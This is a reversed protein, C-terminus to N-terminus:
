RTVEAEALSNTALETPLTPGGSMLPPNYTKSILYAVIRTAEQDAGGTTIDCIWTMDSDIPTQPSDWYPKTWWGGRVFIYVAVAHDYPNVGSVSGWVWGDLTGYASVGDIKIGPEEQWNPVGPQWVFDSIVLEVEQGDTPPQGGVLWLNMRINENGPTPIDPGRYIWQHVLASPPPLTQSYRGYYSRFEVFEPQWVLYNTLYGDTNELDVTFRSCNTCGPCASCPQVVFQANTPEEPNGWRSFEIDLERHHEQHAATEWTFLGLTVNPDILDPRSRTVFIYTGYGFSNTSIAETCYWINDQKSATLHLHGDIDVWIDGEKDSFYNSGPGAPFDRRKVQWNYGAFSLTRLPPSRDIVVWVIAEPISPIEFCPSCIPPVSSAPVLFVIIKTAFQDYGGTTIDCTWTGDPQIPTLPSDYYPKTWWVEEVEIYVVIRWEAPNVGTVKGQLLDFSKYAPVHTLVISPEEKKKIVITIHQSSELGRSDTVTLTIIHDGVSLDNRTFSTGTGIIGNLSSNWVLSSGPLQNGLYDTGSGEFFVADGQSFNSGDAPKSILATPPSVSKIQISISKNATQGKADKVTLTITHDGSSLNRKSFSVGRGINGDISSTWKLSLGRLKRGRYDVGSGEFKVTDGKTFKSGDLPKLISATPPDPKPRIVRAMAVTHDILDQPIESEGASPPPTYGKEVLFADIETAFEDNGGTTIDCKWKNTIWINTLPNAWSPKTWWGEDVKIVVAVRYETNKVGSVSGWAYGSVTGYESVKDITISPTAAAPQFNVALFTFSLVFCNFFLCKRMFYKTEM